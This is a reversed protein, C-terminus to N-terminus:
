KLVKKLEATEAEDLCRIDRGSLAAYYFLRCNKELLELLSFAEFLDKGYTFSGHRDIVLAKTGRSYTGASLASEPSSPRAYPAFVPDKLFMPSEPLCPKLFPQLGIVTCLITFFPHAHIVAKIGPNNRYIELHTRYESSADFSGKIKKGAGNVMVIDDQRLYKKLVRTPTMLFIDKTIKISINGELASAYNREYMLRSYRIIEKREESYKM